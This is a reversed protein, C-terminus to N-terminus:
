GGALVSPPSIPDTPISSVAIVQGGVNGTEQLTVLEVRGWIGDIPVNKVHPTMVMAFGNCLQAMARSM